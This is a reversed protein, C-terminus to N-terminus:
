LTFAIGATLRVTDFSVTDANVRFKNGLFGFDAGLGFMLDGDSTDLDDVLGGLNMDVIEDPDLDLEQYGGRVYFKTGVPGNLGLRASVGYESNIVDTGFHYNAEVGAFAGSGIPFDYGVFGGFIPSADDVDFDFEDFESTDVGLDHYGASAGVFLEGPVISQAFAGTPTAAIAALAIYKALKM